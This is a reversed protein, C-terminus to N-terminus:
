AGGEKVEVIPVTHRAISANAWMVAEDLSNIAITKERSDPALEDILEAFALAAGRIKAYKDAQEQSQVPHFTFRNELNLDFM